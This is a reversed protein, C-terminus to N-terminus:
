AALAEMLRELPMRVNVSGEGVVAVVAHRRDTTERRLPAQLPVGRENAIQLRLERLAEFLGREVGKWTDAELATAKVVRARPLILRVGAERLRVAEDLDLLAFQVLAHATGVVVLLAGRLDLRVAQPQPFDIPFECRGEIAPGFELRAAGGQFRVPRGSAPGDRFFHARGQAARACHTWM